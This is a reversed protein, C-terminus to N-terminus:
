RALECHGPFLITEDPYEIGDLVISQGPKLGREIRV